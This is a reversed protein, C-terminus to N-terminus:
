FTMHRLSPPACLFGDFVVVSSVESQFIMYQVGGVVTTSNTLSIQTGALNEEVCWTFSPSRKVRLISSFVAKPVDTETERCRSSHNTDCFRVGVMTHLVFM